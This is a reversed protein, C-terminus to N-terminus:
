KWPDKEGKRNFSQFAKHLILCANFLGGAIGALIGLIMLWSGASFQKDLFDAGYICLLLPTAFGIGAQSLLVIGKWISFSSKEKEM